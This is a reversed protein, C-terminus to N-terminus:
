SDMARGISSREWGQGYPPNTYRVPSPTDVCTSGTGCATKANDFPLSAAQPHQAGDLM